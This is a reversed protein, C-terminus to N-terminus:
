VWFSLPHFGPLTYCEVRHISFLHSWGYTSWGVVVITLVNIMDNLLESRKNNINSYQLLSFKASSSSTLELFRHCQKNESQKETWFEPQWRLEVARFIKSRVKMCFKGLGPPVFSPWMIFLFYANRAVGSCGKCTTSFSVISIAWYPCDITYSLCSPM